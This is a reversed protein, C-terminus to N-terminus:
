SSAIPLQLEFRCGTPNVDTVILSGQHAKIIDHAISLGLGMGQSFRKNSNSRYFPEFIRNKENLPIGTGNDQVAIVVHHDHQYAQVLIKGNSPTYKIANSMLNNVVQAM